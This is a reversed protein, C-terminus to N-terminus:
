NRQFVVKSSLEDPYDTVRERVFQEYPQLKRLRRKQLALFASFEEETMRLYKRVTERDLGTNRSIQRLSLGERVFEKVKNYMTLKKLQTRM